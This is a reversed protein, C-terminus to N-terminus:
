MLDNIIIRSMKYIYICKNLNFCFCSSISPNDSLKEKNDRINSIM